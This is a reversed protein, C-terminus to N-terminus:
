RINIKEGKSQYVAEILRVVKFAEEGNMEFKKGSKVSDYFDAILVSHGGGYCQKGYVKGCGGNAVANNDALRCSLDVQKGNISVSNSYLRIIDKETEITIEIPFDTSACNTAFFQFDREGSFTAVVTDEVEIVNKLKLSATVASVANPMGILWQLLDLTHLAQNILVGGGETKQKGRWDGSDYYEKDRNWAVFAMATKPPNDKLYEKVFASSPNYRNQHAVGLIAKSNKEAQVIREGDNLNICLPKECIVNINRSLCECIMDAHLYHPTCIHAVDPKVEDLMKVYDSYHLSNPFSAFRSEDNDCVAVIEQGQELLVKKHVASIAGLGIIASKM